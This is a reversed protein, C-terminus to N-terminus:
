NRVRLLGLDNDPPANNEGAASVLAVFLGLTAVSAGVLILTRGPAPRRTQVRQVDSMPAQYLRGNILGILTDGVMRPTRLVVLSGDTRTVWLQGPRSVTIFETPSSVAAFTTCGTLIPILFGSVIRRLM